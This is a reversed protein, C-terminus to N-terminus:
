LVSCFLPPLWRNGDITDQGVNYYLLWFYSIIIAHLTFQVPFPVRSVSHTLGHLYYYLLVKREITVIAIIIIHDCKLLQSSEVVRAANTVCFDAPRAFDLKSLCELLWNIGQGIIDVCLLCLDASFLCHQM